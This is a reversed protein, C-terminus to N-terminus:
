VNGMSGQGSRGTTGPTNTSGLGTGRSQRRGTNNLDSGMDEMGMEGNEGGRLSNIKDMGAQITDGISSKAKAAASTITRRTEAGSQPALLLATVAGAVAGAALTLLTRTTDNGLFGRSEDSYDNRM